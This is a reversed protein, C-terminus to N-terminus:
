ILPPSNKETEESILATSPLEIGMYGQVLATPKPTINKARRESSTLTPKFAKRNMIKATQEYYNFLRKEMEQGSKNTDKDLASVYSKLSGSGKDLETVSKLAKSQLIIAQKLVNSARKYAATLNSPESSNLIETDRKYEKGIREM